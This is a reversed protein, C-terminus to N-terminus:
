PEPSNNQRDDEQVRPQEACTDKIACAGKDKVDILPDSGGGGAGGPIYTSGPDGRPDYPPIANPDDSASTNGNLIANTEADSIAPENAAVDPATLPDGGAAVVAGDGVGDGDTDWNGPDTGYVATEDADSLGDGDSDPASGTTSMSAADSTTGDCGPAIRAAAQSNDYAVQDRVWPEVCVADGDYANRWVYGSQCSLPGYAGNPDVRGAAAANDAAAQTAQSPDVCVADGDYANRWVYGAQCTSPGYPCTQAAALRIRPLGVAAIV